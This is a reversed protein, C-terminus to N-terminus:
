GAQSGGAQLWDVLGGANRVNIVTYVHLDPSRGAQTDGVDLHISKEASQQNRESTARFM